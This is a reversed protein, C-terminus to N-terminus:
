RSFCQHRYTRKQRLKSKFTSAYRKCYCRCTQWSSKNKESERKFGGAIALVEEKNNKQLAEEIEDVLEANVESFNNVFNLPNQIEHAIGATLKGLSALRKSQVLQAQTLKLEQLTSEM